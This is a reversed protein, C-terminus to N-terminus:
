NRGLNVEKLTATHNSRKLRDINEKKLNALAQKRARKRALAEQLWPEIRLEDEISAQTSAIVDEKLHTVPTSVNRKVPRVVSYTLGNEALYITYMYGGIVRGRAVTGPQHNLKKM